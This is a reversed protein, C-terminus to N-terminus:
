PNSIVFNDAVKPHFIRYIDILNMQDTQKQLKNIKKQTSPGDILLLPSNFDGSYTSKSKDTRKHGATSTKHFQHVLM